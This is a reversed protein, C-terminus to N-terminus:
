YYYRLRMHIYVQKSDQGEGGGGQLEDLTMLRGERWVKFLDEATFGSNYSLTYTYTYIYLYLITPHIISTTYIIYVVYCSVITYLTCIYVLCTCIYLCITYMSTSWLYLVCIRIYLASM